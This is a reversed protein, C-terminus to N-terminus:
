PKTDADDVGVQNLLTKKYKGFLAFLASNGSWGLLFYFPTLASKLPLSGVSIGKSNVFEVTQGNILQPLFIVLAIGGLLLQAFNVWEENFFDKTSFKVNPNPNAKAMGKYEKIKSLIYISVGLLFALFGLTYNLLM